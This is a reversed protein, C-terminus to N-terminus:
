RALLEKARATGVVAFFVVTAAIAGLTDAFMDKQADWIDGQSGLYNAAADGGYTAAYWWEILEYSMAVFAVFMVPYSALMLRNAVLRRTLLLEALPYAYFGVSFHAVRDFHNREFGFTESVWDFPVLAFTFHGGTTHLYVLVSMMAYATASFRVGRRWLIGLLGVILWITANEAFWTLREYPAISLFAFWVLYGALLAMPVVAAGRARALPWAALVFAALAAALAPVAAAAPFFFREPFRWAILACTGLVLVPLIFRPLWSPSAAGFRAGSAASDVEGGM